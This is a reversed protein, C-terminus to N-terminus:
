NLHTMYYGKPARLKVKKDGTIKLEISRFGSKNDQEAPEYTLSYMNQIQDRLEKFVRNSGNRGINVFAEGGASNSADILLGLRLPMESAVHVVAVPRSMEDESLNNENVTLKLKSM